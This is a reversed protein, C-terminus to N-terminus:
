NNYWGIEGLQLALWKGKVFMSDSILDHWNEIYTWWIIQVIECYKRYEFLITNWIEYIWFLM